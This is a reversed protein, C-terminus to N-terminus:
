SDFELTGDLAADADLFGTAGGEKVPVTIKITQNTANSLELLASADTLADAVNVSPPEVLQTPMAIGSSSSTLAGVVTSQYKTTGSVKIRFIANSGLLSAIDSCYRAKQSGQAQAGAVSMLANLDIGYVTADAM